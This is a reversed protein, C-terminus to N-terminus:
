DKSKINDLKCFGQAPLDFANNFKTSMNQFAIVAALEIIAEESFHNKLSNRLTEDIPQNKTLQDTFTLALKEEPSYHSSSAYDRLLSIKEISIADQLIIATNLDICFACNNLQSVRIIVLRRLLPSINSRRHNIAQYLDTMASFLRPIKAWLKASSLIQGYKMKQFVFILQTKIFHIM